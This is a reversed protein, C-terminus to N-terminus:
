YTYLSKIGKFEEVHFSVFKELFFIIRDLSKMDSVGNKKSSLCVLNQFLEQTFEFFIVHNEKCESCLIGKHFSYFLVKGDSLAKGCDSCKELEIEYGIEKLLFLFFRVFLVKPIENEDNLLMLIKKLGKFIKGNPEHEPVLGFVLEAVASSYKIRELNNKIVAPSLILDAQTVLQIERSEKSHLVVQVINLPDIIMGIKNKSARGGKIIVPIRGKEESYITAIKSTDGYDLKKLVVAETRVLEAM